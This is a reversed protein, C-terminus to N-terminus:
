PHRLYQREYAAMIESPLRKQAM